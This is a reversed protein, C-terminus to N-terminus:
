AISGMSRWRRGPWRPWRDSGHVDVIAIRMGARVERSRQESGSGCGIGDGVLALSSPEAYGRGLLWSLEACAVRLTPVMAEGFLEADAPNPGRGM